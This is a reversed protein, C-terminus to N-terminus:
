QVRLASRPAIVTLVKWGNDSVLSWRRDIDFKHEYVDVGYVTRIETDFSPRLPAHPKTTKSALCRLLPM